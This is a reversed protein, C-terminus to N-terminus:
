PFLHSGALPVVSRGESKAHRPWALGVPLAHGEPSAEQRLRVTQAFSLYRSV